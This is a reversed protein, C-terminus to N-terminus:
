FNGLEEITDYIYDIFDDLARSLTFIDERDLPTVFTDELEHILIRFVEDADKEVQKAQTSCKGVPKRLYAQLAEVSAITFEGQQILLQLFNSQRPKLFRKVWQM